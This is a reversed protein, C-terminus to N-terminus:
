VPASHILKQTASLEGLGGRKTEWFGTQPGNGHQWGHSWFEMETGLALLIWIGTTLAAKDADAVVVVVRLAAV